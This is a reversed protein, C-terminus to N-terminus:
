RDSTVEAEERKAELIGKSRGLILPLIRAFGLTTVPNLPRSTASFNGIMITAPRVVCDDICWSPEQTIELLVVHGGNEIGQDEGTLEASAVIICRATAGATMTDSRQMM